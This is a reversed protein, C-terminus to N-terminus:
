FFETLNESFKSFKIAVRSGTIRNIASCIEGSTGGGIKSIIEYDNELAKEDKIDCNFM